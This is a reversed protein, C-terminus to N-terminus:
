QCIDKKTQNKLVHTVKDALLNAFSAPCNFLLECIGTFRVVRFKKFNYFFPSFFSIKILICNKPGNGPFFEADLMPLSPDFFSQLCWHLGLDM